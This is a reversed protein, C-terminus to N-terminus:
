GYRVPLMLAWNKKKGLQIVGKM